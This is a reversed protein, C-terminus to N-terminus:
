WHWGPIRELAEVREHALACTPVDRLRYKHSFTWMGLRVGEYVTSKAPLEHREDVFKVLLNYNRWWQTDRPQPWQWGNIAELAAVRDAPMPQRTAGAYVKRQYEVWYGLQIGRYEAFRGPIAGHTAVYELLMGYDSWWRDEEPDDAWRWHPVMRLLSARAPLMRLARYERQQTTIWELDDPLDGKKLSTRAVGELQAWWEDFDAGRDGRDGRDGHADRWEPLACLAARKDPKLRAWIQLQREAWAGVKCGGYCVENAPLEGAAATYRALAWFHARWKGSTM